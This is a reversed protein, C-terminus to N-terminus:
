HIQNEASLANFSRKTKAGSVRQYTQPGVLREAARREALVLLANRAGPGIDERLVAPLRRDSDFTRQTAYLKINKAGAGCEAEVDYQGPGPADASADAERTWNGLARERTETSGFAVDPRQDGFRAATFNVVSEPGGTQRQEAQTEAYRRRNQEQRVVERELEKVRAFLGRVTRSAFPASGRTSLGPDAGKEFDSAGVEYQGVGPAEERAGPWARETQLGFPEPRAPHQPPPREAPMGGQIRPISPAQRPYKAAAAVLAPRFRAPGAGGSGYGGEVGYRDQQAYADPGPTQASATEQASLYTPLERANELRYAPGYIGPYMEAYRRDAETQRARADRHAADLARALANKCGITHSAQVNYTGFLDASAANAPAQYSFRDTQSLKKPSKQKKASPIQHPIQAHKKPTRSM